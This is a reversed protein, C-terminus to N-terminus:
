RHGKSAVSVRGPLSFSRLKLFSNMETPFFSSESLTEQSACHESSLVAKCSKLLGLRRSGFSPCALLMAHKRHVKFSQVTLSDYISNRFHKSMDILEHRASGAFGPKLAAWIQLLLTAGSM